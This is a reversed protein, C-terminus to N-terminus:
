GTHSAGAALLASSAVGVLLHTGLDCLANLLVRTRVVVAGLLKALQARLAEALLEVGAPELCVEGGLEGPAVEPKRGVVGLGGLLCPWCCRCLISYTGFLVCKSVYYCIKLM